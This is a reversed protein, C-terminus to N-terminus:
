AVAPGRRGWRRGLGLGLLGMAGALVWTTGWGEGESRPATSGTGEARLEAIEAELKQNLGQIAALAVGDADVTGITADDGGVGFTRHFDESVPGIHSVGPEAKYHWTTIPLSAVDELVEQPDVPAFGAKLSRSSANTWVGGTTLFAGTSTNIFGGQSDLTSDSQLFFNGSARAIFQNAGSSAMVAFQFDAWV